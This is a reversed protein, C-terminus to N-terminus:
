SLLKSRVAEYNTTYLIYNQHKTKVVVRDTTGYPTGIRIADRDQGAYTDDLYVEAIDASPIEIKSLLWQITVKEGSKKVDIGLM